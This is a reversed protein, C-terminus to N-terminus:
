GEGPKTRSLSATKRVTRKAFAPLELSAILRVDEANFPNRWVVIALSTSLSAGLGLLAGGVGGLILTPILGAVLPAALVPDLRRQVDLLARARSEFAVAVFLLAGSTAIAPAVIGIHFVGVMLLDGIVNIAAAVGNILAAVRTQERLMLLPMALYAVFLLDLGIFLIALPTAANRYADGLILPTVTPLVPVVIGTLAAICFLGIPVGRALHHQILARRGAMQMSVFLPVLVVPASSALGSLMTYAQYAVAYVGVDGSSRFIRLIFVDVSAFVFQSLVVGILPVSLVLMRRLLARDVDVPGLGVKAVVPLVVILFLCSTVADLLLLETPTLHSGSAALVVLTAAFAGGNLLQGGASVRMRGSTELLCSWHDVLISVLALVLAIWVLSWGLSGPLAGVAKLVIVLAASVLAVPTVIVLRNWTLRNMTGRLELDERGYRRVSTATWSSSANFVLTGVIGVLAVTGYGAPGLMRTIFLISIASLAIVAFRGTAITAFDGAVTSAGRVASAPSGHSPTQPIPDPAPQTKSRHTSPTLGRPPPSVAIPAALRDGPDIWPSAARSGPWANTGSAESM